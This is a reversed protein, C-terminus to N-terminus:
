LSNRVGKIWVGRDMPLSMYSINPPPSSFFINLFCLKFHWVNHLGTLLKNGVISNNSTQNISSKHNKLLLYPLINFFCHYVPGETFYQLFPCPCSLLVKKWVPTETQEKFKHHWGMFDDNRRM